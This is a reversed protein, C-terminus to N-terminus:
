TTDCARAHLTMVIICVSEAAFLCFLSTTNQGYCTSFYWNAILQFIRHLVCQSYNGM